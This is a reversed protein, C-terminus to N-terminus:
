SNITARDNSDNPDRNTVEEVVRFGMARLTSLYETLSSSRNLAERLTGETEPVHATASLFPHLVPSNGPNPPPAKKSVLPGPVDTIELVLEGNRFVLYQKPEASM